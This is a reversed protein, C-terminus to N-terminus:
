ILTKLEPALDGGGEVSVENMDLWDATTTLVKALRTAVRARDVGDESWAAKVRLTSSKRDTKLDVRGVLHGDLLFPLVYYGFERKEAPVYIEIRYRFGFLHEVRPRFWVLPDFPSVLTATDVTRPTTAERHLYATSKWGEVEVEELIGKGQLHAMAQGIDNVKVRHYDALDKATAVGYSRAAEEINAVMAEFPDLDPLSVREEGIVRETLDYLRVFNPRGATTLVGTAFLHELAIKGKKWGWWSGSSDGPEELDSPQLPGHRTVQDLVEAVFGPHDREIRDLGWKSSTMRQRFRRRHDVPILSAEHVWYEVMEGSEWLWRDLASRDYPGLRSFFPMYHTRSFVNVSDLQIVGIRGLVRRFHRVDVRARPAPDNFGQAALAIRRARDLSIRGM